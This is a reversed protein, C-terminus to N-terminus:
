HSGGDFCQIHDHGRYVKFGGTAYKLDEEDSRDFEKKGDIWTQEVKTYVSFPDGSLIIFDADKGPELTGIRNELELMKAGNITLAELATKRDLGARIGLAAMRLFLRADTIWDDTHFAIMVGADAMIKATELRLNVAELKGGPSDVLIISCPVGAEAIEEAVKWGESVHHLVVNFGFEKKLRLVTLIDDARHTHYHVMRNGDLVEVLADMGINKDPMKSRDNGATEMKKRYELAGYYLNRVIAASKGRTSPFPKERISNTGNAMKMGGCIGDIIDDCFLMEDITDVKKPKLYVTQGSLLHGSGPMINLTTIGGARARNLNDHHPNIADLIRIDPHTPSDSDFGWDLGLHSHTDVLGPMIIKGDTKVITADSPISVEDNKGVAVIKGEHIILVGNEIENGNVPIIHAGTFAIKGDQTYASRILFISIFFILYLYKM